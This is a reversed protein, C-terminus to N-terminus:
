KDASDPAEGPLMVMWAVGFQDTVQGYLPSWFTETLPMNIQGNKALANFVRHAEDPDNLTLALSFGSIETGDGCGDSAFLKINAISFECHMVKDEFGPTLADEPLPEPSDSFRMLMSISAGLHEQYYTLAEECRGSFFLYSNMTAQQMSNQMTVTDRLCQEKEAIEGTTDWDAYDEMSYFPRIEIDSDELMPNPCKKVWEIAQEISDVNWIWYGAILENTEIFPGQVVERKNGSFRVRFGQNSPKLGDGSEMIGAKVLTENFEGMANMLEQTPPVGAESSDTAKVIVMVKM